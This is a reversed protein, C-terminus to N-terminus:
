RDKQKIIHLLYCWAVTFAVSNTSTIEVFYETFHAPGEKDGNEDKDSLKNGLSHLNSDVMLSMILPLFKHVLEGGKFQVVNNAFVYFGPQLQQLEM